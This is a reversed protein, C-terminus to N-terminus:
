TLQRGGVASEVGHGTRHEQYAEIADKARVHTEESEVRLSTLKDQDAGRPRDRMADQLLSSADAEANVAEVVQEFLQECETCYSRSTPCM